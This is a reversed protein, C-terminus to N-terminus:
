VIVSLVKLFSDPILALKEDASHLIKDSLIKLFAYFESWEGKNASLWM